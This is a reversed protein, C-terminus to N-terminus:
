VKQGHILLDIQNCVAEILYTNSATITHKNWSQQKNSSFIVVYIYISAVISTTKRYSGYKSSWVSSEFQRQVEPRTSHFLQQERISATALIWTACACTFWGQTEFSLILHRISYIHYTCSCMSDLSTWCKQLCPPRDDHSIMPLFRPFPNFTGHLYRKTAFRRSILSSPKNWFRM